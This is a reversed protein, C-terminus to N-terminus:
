KNAKKSFSYLAFYILWCIFNPDSALYASTTPPILAPNTFLFTLFTYWTIHRYVIKKEKSIYSSKEILSDVVSQYEYSEWTRNLYHATSKDVEKGDVYLVATHRFGSRTKNSQAIIETKDDITFKKGYGYSSISPTVSKASNDVKMIDTKTVGDDVKMTDVRKADYDKMIQKSNEAKFGNQLLFEKIHRLTTPSYTGSVYAKGDKIYAVDTTYSKLIKKGDEERVNAKNYFSKQNNYSPKLKIGFAMKFEM